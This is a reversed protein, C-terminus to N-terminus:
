KGLIRRCINEGFCAQDKGNQKARYMYQDATEILSEATGGHSCIVGISCTIKVSDELANETIAKILADTKQKAAPEGINAMFVIFEDGGFRGIIDEARFVTRIRDALASLLKDGTIHGHQDNVAKFNDIDIMMLACPKVDSKLIDDIQKLMADKNLFGTLSDKNAKQLAADREAIFPDVNIIRGFVSTMRGSSDEVSHFALTCWKYEMTAFRTKYEFTIETPSDAASRLIEVYGKYFDPHVTNEYVKNKMYEKYEGQFTEGDATKYSYKFVDGRINYEFLVERSTIDLISMRKQQSMIEQQPLTGTLKKLYEKSYATVIAEDVCVNIEPPINEDKMQVYQILRANLVHNAFFYEKASKNVSCIFLISTLQAWSMIHHGNEIVSLRPVSIGCRLAFEKQSLRLLERIKPLHRGLEICM